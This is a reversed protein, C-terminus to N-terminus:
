IGSPWLMPGSVVGLLLVLWARSRDVKMGALGTLVSLAVAMGLIVGLGAFGQAFHPTAGPHFWHGLLVGLGFPVPAGTLPVFWLRGVWRTWAVTVERPTNGPVEDSSAYVDLAIFLMLVGAAIAGAAKPTLLLFDPIWDPPSM